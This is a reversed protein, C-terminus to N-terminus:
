GEECRYAIADSTTTVTMICLTDFLTDPEGSRVLSLEENVLARLTEKSLSLTRKNKKKM